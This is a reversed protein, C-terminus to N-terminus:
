LRRWEIKRAAFVASTEVLMRLGNETLPMRGKARTFCGLIGARRLIRTRSARIPPNAAAMQEVVRKVLDLCNEDRAKWDFAFRRRPLPPHKRLWTRDNRRLWSYVKSHAATPAPIKNALAELWFQRCERREVDLPRWRLGRTWRGVPGWKGPRPFPLGAMEAWRVVSGQHIGILRAIHSITFDQDMWLRSLLDRNRVFRKHQRRRRGHPRPQRAFVPRAVAAETLLRDVNWGLFHLLMLHYLPQKAGSRTRLMSVLWGSRDKGDMILDLGTGLREDFAKIILPWNVHGGKRLFGAEKLGNLYALRLAEPGPGLRPVSLLGFSENAIFRILSCANEPPPWNAVLPFGDVVPPSPIYHLRDRGYRAVRTEVLPVGHEHCVFVGPLQPTRHWWGMGYALERSLCLPCVRLFAPLQLRWNALGTIFFVGFRVSSLMCERARQARELPIFPSLYPYLTHRNIITDADLRLEPPLAAATRRLDHPLDANIESKKTGRLQSPAHRNQEVMVLRTMISCFMEDIEPGPFHVVGGM